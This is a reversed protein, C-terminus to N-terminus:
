LTAALADGATVASNISTTQGATLAAAFDAEAQKIKLHGTNRLLTDKKDTNSAGVMQTGGVIGNILDVSHFAATIHDQITTAM